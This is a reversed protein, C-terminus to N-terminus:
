LVPVNVYVAPVTTVVPDVSFQPKDVVKLVLPIVQFLTVKPPVDWVYVKDLLRFILPVNLRFGMDPIVSVLLVRLVALIVTPPVAGIEPVVAMTKLPVPVQLPAPPPAILFLKVMLVAPVSVM